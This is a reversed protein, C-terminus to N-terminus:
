LQDAPIANRLIVYGNKAFFRLDEAQREALHGCEFKGQIVDLVNGQDVWLGGFKSAIGAVDPRAAKLSPLWGRYRGIRLYHEAESFVQGAGIEEKAL